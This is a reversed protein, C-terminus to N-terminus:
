IEDARYLHHACFSDAYLDAYSHSSAHAIPCGRGIHANDWVRYHWSPAALLEGSRRRAPSTQSRFRANSCPKSANKKREEDLLCFIRSGLM